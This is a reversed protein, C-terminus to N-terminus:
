HAQSEYDAHFVWNRPGLLDYFGDVTTVLRHLESQTQSLEARQEDSLAHKIAFFSRMERVLERVQPLDYATGFATATESNKSM